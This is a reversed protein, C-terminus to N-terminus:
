GSIPLTAAFDAFLEDVSPRTGDTSYWEPDLKNVHVFPAPADSVVIARGESDHGTIVRRFQRPM